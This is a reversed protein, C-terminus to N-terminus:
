EVYQYLKIEEGLNKEFKYRTDINIEDEDNGKIALYPPPVNTKFVIDGSTSDIKILESQRIPTISNTDLYAWYSQKLEVDIYVPRPFHKKYIKLYERASVFHLDYKTQLYNILKRLKRLDEQPHIYTSVLAGNPLSDIVAKDIDDFPFANINDITLPLELLGRNEEKGDWPTNIEGNINTYYPLPISPRDPFKYSYEKVSRLIFGEPQTDKNKNPYILSADALVGLKCLYFRNLGYPPINWTHRTITPYLLDEENFSLKYDSLSKKNWDIDKFRFIWEYEDQVHKESIIILLMSFM